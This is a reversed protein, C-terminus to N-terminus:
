RASRQDEEEPVGLAGLAGRAAAAPGSRPRTGGTEGPRGSATQRKLARKGGGRGRNGSAPGPLPSDFHAGSIPFGM